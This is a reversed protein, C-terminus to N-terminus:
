FEANGHLTHLIKKQVKLKQRCEAAYIDRVGEPTHILQKTM